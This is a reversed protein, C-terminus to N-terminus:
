SQRLSTDVKSVPLLAQAVIASRLHDVMQWKGKAMQTRFKEEPGPSAERDRDWCETESIVAVDCGGFFPTETMKRFDSIEFRLDSAQSWAGPVVREQGIL